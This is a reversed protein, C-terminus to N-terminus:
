KKEEYWTMQINELVKKDPPHVKTVERMTFIYDM